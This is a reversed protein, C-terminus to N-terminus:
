RREIFVGFKRRKIKFHASNSGHRRVPLIASELVALSASTKPQPLLNNSALRPWQQYSSHDTNSIKLRYFFIRFMQMNTHQLSLALRVSFRRRYVNNIVKYNIMHKINGFLSM